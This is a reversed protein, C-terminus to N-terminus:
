MAATSIVWGPLAPVLNEISSQHNKIQTNLGIIKKRDIM